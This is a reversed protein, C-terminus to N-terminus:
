DFIKAQMCNTKAFQPIDSYYEEIKLAVHSAFFIQLIIFLFYFYIFM